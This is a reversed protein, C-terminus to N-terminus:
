GRLDCTMQVVRREPRWRQPEDRGNAVFGCSEYLAIAHANDDNVWLLVKPLGRGRAWALAEEVLRRALGAGRAEPAVWMSGLCLEGEDFATAAMGVLGGAREAVLVVVEEGHSGAIALGQWYSEPM